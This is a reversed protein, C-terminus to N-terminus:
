MVKQWSTRSAPDGGTYRYGERIEGVKPPPPVVPLGTDMDQLSGTIPNFGTRRKEPKAAEQAMKLLDLRGKIASRRDDIEGIAYQQQLQALQEARSQEAKRKMGALEMLTPAVNGLVGKIGPTYTPSLLAASLAFLREQRSPGANGERLAQAQQEFQRRRMDSAQQEIQQSETYARRWEGWFDDPIGSLPGQPMPAQRGPLGGMPAQQPASPLAGQQPYIPQQGQLPPLEGRMQPIDPMGEVSIGERQRLAEAEPGVTDIGNRLLHQLFQDFTMRPM